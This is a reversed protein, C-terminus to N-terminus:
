LLFGISPKDGDDTAMQLIRFRCDCCVLCVFIDYIIKKEIGFALRNSTTTQLEIPTDEFGVIAIRGEQKTAAYTRVICFSNEVIM